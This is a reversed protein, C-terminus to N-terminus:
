YLFVPLLKKVIDSFRLIGFESGVLHAQAERLNKSLFQKMDFDAECYTLSPWSIGNYSYYYIEHFGRYHGFNSICGGDLGLIEEHCGYLGLLFRM